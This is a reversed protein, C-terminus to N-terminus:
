NEGKGEYNIKKSQCVKIFETTDLDIVTKTSPILVKPENKRNWISECSGDKFVAIGSTYHKIQRVLEDVDINKPCRIIIMDSTDIYNRAHRFRISFKSSPYLEFLLQKITKCEERM